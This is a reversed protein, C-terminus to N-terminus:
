VTGKPKASGHGAHQDLPEDCHHIVEGTLPDTVNERYRNAQRDILREKRVWKSEKRFVADGSMGEAIPKKYRPRKQKFAVSDHCELTETISVGIVRVTSGCALCPVRCHPDPTQPLVLGCGACKEEHVVATM